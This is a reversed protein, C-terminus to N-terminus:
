SSTGEVANLVKWAESLQEIREADTMDAEAPPFGFEYKEPNKKMDALLADINRKHGKYDYSPM